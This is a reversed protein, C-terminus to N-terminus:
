NLSVAAPVSYAGDLSVLCISLYMYLFLRLASCIFNVETNLGAPDKYAGNLSVSLGATLEM